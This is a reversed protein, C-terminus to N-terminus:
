EATVERGLCAEYRADGWTYVKGTSSLATFSTESAVLQKITELEEFADEKKKPIHRLSNYQNINEPTFEVRLKTFPRCAQHIKSIELVSSYWLYKLPTGAIQGNGAIAVQPLSDQKELCL